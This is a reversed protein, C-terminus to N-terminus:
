KLKDLKKRIEGANKADSAVELYKKYADKAAQKDKLKEEVEGLRLWAEGYGDNWKTADRFRGEAARYKGQKFYFNGIRVSKEALLPNFSYTDPAVETDEEPPVEYKGGKAQPRDKKLEEQQGKAPAQDKQGASACVVATLGLLVAPMWRVM